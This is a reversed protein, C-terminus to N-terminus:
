ITRRIVLFRYQVAYRNLSELLPRQFEIEPCLSACSNALEVLDHTKTFAIKHEQLLAKLYKEIRQRAHFCVADYVRKKKARMEGAAVLYDCEAKEIWEETLPNM